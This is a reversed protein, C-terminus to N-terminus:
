ALGSWDDDRGTVTVCRPSNALRNWDRLGERCLEMVKEHKGEMVSAVFYTQQEVLIPLMDISLHAKGKM